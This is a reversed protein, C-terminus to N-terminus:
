LSEALSCSGAPMFHTSGSTKLILLSRPRVLEPKLVTAQALVADLGSRVAARGAVSRPNAEDELLGELAVVATDFKM